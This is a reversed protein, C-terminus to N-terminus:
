AKRYPFNDYARPLRAIDKMPREQEARLRIDTRSAAHANERQRRHYGDLRRQTLHGNRVATPVACGSATTHACDVFRRDRTLDTLDVM